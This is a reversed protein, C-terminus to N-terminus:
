SVPLPETGGLAPVTRVKPTSHQPSTRSPDVDTLMPHTRM